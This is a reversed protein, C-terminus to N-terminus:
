QGVYGDDWAARYHERELRDDRSFRFSIEPYKEEFYVRNSGRNGIM